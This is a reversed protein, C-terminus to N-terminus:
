FEAAVVANKFPEYRAADAALLPGVRLREFAVQVQALRAQRRREDQRLPGAGATSDRGAIIFREFSAQHGAQQVASRHRGYSDRM